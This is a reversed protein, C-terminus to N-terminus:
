KYEHPKKYNIETLIEDLDPNNEKLEDITLISDTIKTSLNNNNIPFNLQHM